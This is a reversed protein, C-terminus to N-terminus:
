RLIQVSLDATFLALLVCSDLTALGEMMLVLSFGRCVMSTSTYSSYPSFSTFDIAQSRGRM